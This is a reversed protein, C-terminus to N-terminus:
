VYGTSIARQAEVGRVWTGFLQPCLTSPRRARGASFICTDKNAKYRMPLLHRMVASLAIQVPRLMVRFQLKSKVRLYGGIM